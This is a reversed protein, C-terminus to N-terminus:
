HKRKGNRKEAGTKDWSKDTPIFDITKTLRDCGTVLVKVTQGITYTRGTMRGVLRYHKEDFIYYDDVLDSVHVLGEITNPLAVYFGWGTVGSITGTFEEGVRHEMYQVKKIKDTEREADDARREMASTQVAADPLLKQYHAIRQPTMQGHLTERIIRHIQLDPYRRIPSTFHCYYEAALGFHGKNEPSYKAQQMSRLVLTNILTEEDTGSASEVLQQIQKPTVRGARPRLILGFTEVFAALDTIKDEDPREHIRYLFPIKRTAYEEAVTENAALMFDEIMREAEGREYPYIDIPRGKEDLEIKTEPFEFDVSGRAHRKKRLIHSLTLMERFMDVFGRYEECTEEDGDLIKNVKSYTMRHDSNILSEAIEHAVINGKSDIEMLCSLTLRDEGENLSCIGNSLKHPLMPIVRDVLYISTGRRYAEKDLPSGETVYHSVDAIHVGLRYHTSGDEARFTQLSVADDIDKTDDGDITVTRLTRLDLRNRKDDESVEDPIDPLQRLVDEPFEKPLERAEVVSLIDVGPDDMHGLIDTVKGRIAKDEATPYSTIAVVVKHGNVAGMTADSPILVDATIKPDDPVVTGAGHVREFTGVIRKVAREIVRIVKGDAKGTAPDESVLLVAVTDGNMAGNTDDPPIFLDKERGEISVFGFGRANACFTGTMLNDEMLLIRGDEDAYVIGDKELRDMVRRFSSKESKNLDLLEAWNRFRMPRYDPSHMIDLIRSKREEFRKEFEEDSERVFEKKEEKKRSKAKKEKDRFKSKAERDKGKKGM